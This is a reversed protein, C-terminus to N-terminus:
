LDIEGLEEMLENSIVRLIIEDKKHCVKCVLYKKLLEISVNEGLQEKVKGKDLADGTHGCRLCYPHLQELLDLDNFTTITRIEKM